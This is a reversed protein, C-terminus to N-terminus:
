QAGLAVGGLALVGIAVNGMAIIGKAPKLPHGCGPCIAAKESVQPRCERCNMLGM